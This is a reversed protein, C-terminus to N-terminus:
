KNYATKHFVILTRVFVSFSIVSVWTDSGVKDFPLGTGRQGCLLIRHVHDVQGLQPPGQSGCPGRDGSEEGLSSRQRATM